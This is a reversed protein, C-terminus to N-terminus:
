SAEMAPREMEYSPEQPEQDPALQGAPKQQPYTTPSGAEAFLDLQQRKTKWNRHSTHYRKRASRRRSGPQSRHNRSQIMVRTKRQVRMWYPPFAFCALLLVMLM